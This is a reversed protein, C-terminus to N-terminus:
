EEESGLRKTRVNAQEPKFFAWGKKTTWSRMEREAQVSLSTQFEQTRCEVWSNLRDRWTDYRMIRENSVINTTPQLYRSDYGMKRAKFPLFIRIILRQEESIGRLTPQYMDVNRSTRDLTLRSGQLHSRQVTGFRRYRFILWRQTVNWHLQSRFVTAASAQLRTYDSTM